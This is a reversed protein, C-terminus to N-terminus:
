VGPIEAPVPVNYGRVVAPRAAITRYWRQVHPYEALDIRQWAHRAIWPWTAIDAISYDAGAVFAHTALRENLVGYLRIAEDGYRKAAYDSVEPRFHLFHHAQGLMPGLGGDAVDAMRHCAM